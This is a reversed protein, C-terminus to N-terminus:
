QMPEQVKGLDHLLGATFAWLSAAGTVDFDKAFEAAMQAVAKLHVELSHERKDEAFHAIIM